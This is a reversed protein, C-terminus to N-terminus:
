LRELIRNLALEIRDMRQGLLEIGNQLPQVFVFGELTSKQTPQADAPGNDDGYLTAIGYM